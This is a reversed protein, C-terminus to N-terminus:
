HTCSPLHEKYIKDENERSCEVKELYKSVNSLEFKGAELNERAWTAVGGKLGTNEHLTWGERQEAYRPPHRTFWKIRIFPHTSCALNYLNQLVLIASHSAGVVAVTIKSDRFLTASLSSPKLAPDLGIDKLHSVPLSGVKPRSGTCMILINSSIKATTNDCPTSSQITITWKSHDSWSASSVTGLKKHVGRSKDLGKTLM